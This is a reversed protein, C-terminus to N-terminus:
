KKRSENIGERTHTLIDRAKEGMDKDIPLVRIGGQRYNNRNGYFELVQKYKEIEEYLAQIIEESPLDFNVADDKLWESMPQNKSM